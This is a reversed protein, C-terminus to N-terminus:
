AASHAAIADLIPGIMRRFEEPNESMLFHGGQSVEAYHAGPIGDAVAKSGMPAVRLRDYEGVLIYVPCKRTDIDQLEGKSQIQPVHEWESQIQINVYRLPTVRM